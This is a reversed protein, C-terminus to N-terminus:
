NSDLILNPLHFKNSLGLFVSQWLTIIVALRAETPFLPNIPRSFLPTKLYEDHVPLFSKPALAATKLWFLMYILMNQCITACAPIM